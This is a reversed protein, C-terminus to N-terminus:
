TGLSNISQNVSRSMSQSVSQSVSQSFKLTELKDRHSEQPHTETLCFSSPTKNREGEGDPRAPPFAQDPKGDQRERM